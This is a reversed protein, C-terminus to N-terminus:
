GRTVAGTDFPRTRMPHTHCVFRFGRRELIPRSMPAADVAIFRTGRAQADEVRRDFLASYIGQGRHSEAVAGGCLQAFESGGHFDIWGSGVVQGDARACYIPDSMKRLVDLVWPLRCKWVEEQFAVIEALAAGAAKEIQIGHLPQHEVHAHAVELVMLAEVHHCTLGLSELRSKLDAPQDFDHLKWEAALGKTAMHALEQAIREGAQEPAFRAFSLLAEDSDSEPFHRTIDPLVEVQYGPIRAARRASAYRSFTERRWGDNSM